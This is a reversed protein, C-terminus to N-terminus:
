RRFCCHNWVRWEFFYHRWSNEGSVDSLTLALCQFVGHQVKANESMTSSSSQRRRELSQQCRASDPCPGCVRGSQNVETPIETDVPYSTKLLWNPTRAVHHQYLLSVNTARGFCVRSWHKWRNSGWRQTRPASVGRCIICKQHLHQTSVAVSNDM